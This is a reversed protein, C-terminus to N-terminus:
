STELTSDRAQSAPTIRPDLGRYSGLLSRHSNSYHLNGDPGIYKCLESHAAATCFALAAAAVNAVFAPKRM